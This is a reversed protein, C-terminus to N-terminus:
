QREKRWVMLLIIWTLVSVVIGINLLPPWFSLTITHKGSKMPVAVFAGLAKKIKVSKGDVQAHWGSSYPITTMLTDQNNPINITGELNLKGKYSLKFEDQKVQYVDQQLKSLDFQYVRLSGLSIANGDIPEIEIKITSGPVNAAVNILAPHAINGVGPLPHDNIKINANWLINSDMQIYYPQATVNRLIVTYRSPQKKNDTILTGNAGNDLHCNIAEISYGIENFYNENKGTIANMVANQNAAANDTSMEPLHYVNRNAAFGIGMALPNSYTVASSSEHIRTYYSVDPRYSIAPTVNSGNLNEFQNAPTLYYQINFIADTLPTGKTYNVKGTYTPQGLDDMLKTVAARQTSSFNSIGNYSGQLSDNETRQYTKAIRYFEDAKVNEKIWKADSDLATTFAAFDTQKTWQFVKLTLDANTGAEVIALILVALFALSKARLNGIKEHDLLLTLSLAIFMLCFFFASLIIKQNNLFDFNKYQIAILLLGIIPIIFAIFLQYKQPKGIMTLGRIALIVMWIGIVFSFRYPYFVPYQFIHWFLDLPSFCLSLFLFGSVLFAAIKEKLPIRKAVFYLIFGIIIASGIFLNPLGGQIQEDNVTGILFKSIMKWPAYEIKIPINALMYQGKSHSIDYYAPMLLFSVATAGLIGGLAFRWAHQGFSKWGDWQRVATWVFYLCAFICAMYGMYFNILLTLAVFVTFYLFKDTSIIKEIGYLMFPLLILVDLWMINFQNAIAWGMLPYFVSVMPLYKEVKQNNFTHGLFYCIAYGAFGYKLLTIVLVGVTIYKAPVLLLLLNFPSLLYYAWLGVTEGGLGNTFSYFFQSPHHLITDRYFAFFDVYQENLDYTFLTNQGFPFIHQMIFIVLITLLPLLFYIGYQAKKTLQQIKKM